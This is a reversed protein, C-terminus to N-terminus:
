IMSFVLHNNIINQIQSSLSKSGHSSKTKMSSPERWVFSLSCFVIMLQSSRLFMKTISLHPICSQVKGINQNGRHWSTQPLDRYGYVQVNDALRTSSANMRTLSLCIDYIGSWCRQKWHGLFPTCRWVIEPRKEEPRAKSTWCKPGIMMNPSSKIRFM